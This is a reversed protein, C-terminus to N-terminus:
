SAIKKKVHSVRQYICCYYVSERFMSIFNRVIDESKKADLRIFFIRKVSIYKDHMRYQLNLTLIKV